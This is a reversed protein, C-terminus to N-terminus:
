HSDRSSRSRAIKEAQHRRRSFYSVIYLAFLTGSISSAAMIRDPGGGNAIALLTPLILILAGVVVLERWSLWFSQGREIEREALKVARELERHSRVGRAFGESFARLGRGSASPVTSPTDTTGATKIGRRSLERDLCNRAVDTLDGRCLAMLGDDTMSAYRAELGDRSVVFGHVAAGHPPHEPLNAPVTRLFDQDRIGSAEGVGALSGGCSFCFKGGVKVRQGCQPCLLLKRAAAAGAAAGAEFQVEKRYIAM